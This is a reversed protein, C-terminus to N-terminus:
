HTYTTLLSPVYPRQVPAWIRNDKRELEIRESGVYLVLQYKLDPIDQVIIEKYPGLDATHVQISTVRRVM